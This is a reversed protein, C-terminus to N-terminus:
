YSYYVMYRTSSFFKGIPVSNDNQTANRGSGKTPWRLPSSTQALKGGDEPKRQVIM